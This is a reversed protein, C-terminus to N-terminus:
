ARGRLRLGLYRVFCPIERLRPVAARLGRRVRGPWSDDTALPPLDFLRTVEEERDIGDPANFIATLTPGYSRMRRSGRVWPGWDSHGEWNRYVEWCPDDLTRFVAVFDEHDSSFTRPYLREMAPRIDSDLHSDHIFVARVGADRLLRAALQLAYRGKPGDILVTCPGARACLRPLLVFADGFLLRLHPYRGGLRRLAILSDETYKLSEVSYVAAERPAAFYEALVETSNGRARGSEIVTGVGLHRSLACFLLMESNLVGKIDHRVRALRGALSDREAACIAVIEQPLPRSAAAPSPPPPSSARSTM